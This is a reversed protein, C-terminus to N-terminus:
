DKRFKSDLKKTGSSSFFENISESERLDLQPNNVRHDNVESRLGLYWNQYYYIGVFSNANFGSYGNYKQGLLPIQCDSAYVFFNATTFFITSLAFCKLIFNRM